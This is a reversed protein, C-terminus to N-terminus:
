REHASRRTSEELPNFFERRLYDEYGGLFTPCEDGWATWGKCEERVLSSVELRTAPNPSSPRAALVANAFGTYANTGFNVRAVSHPLRRLDAMAISSGGHLTLRTTPLALSSIEEMLSRDLSRKHEACLGDKHGVGLAREFLAVRKKEISCREESWKVRLRALWLRMAYAAGAEASNMIAELGAGTNVLQNQITTILRREDSNTSYGAEALRRGIADCATFLCRRGGQDYADELQSIEWLCERMREFGYDSSHDQGVCIALYDPCVAELFRTADVMHTQGFNRSSTADLDGLEAEVPVQYGEALRMAEDVFRINAELPRTSADAMVSDFGSDLAARILDMDHAHDLHLRLDAGTIKRALNVYHRMQKLVAAAAEAPPRLTKGADTYYFAAEYPSIEVWVPSAAGHAVRGIPILMGPHKININSLVGKPLTRLGRKIATAPAVTTERGAEFNERMNKRLTFLHAAVAGAPTAPHLHLTRAVPVHLVHASVFLTGVGPHHRWREVQADLQRQAASGSHGRLQLAVLVPAVPALTEVTKAFASAHCSVLTASSQSLQLLAWDPLPMESDTVIYGTTQNRLGPRFLMAPSCTM